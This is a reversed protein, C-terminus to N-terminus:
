PSNRFPIGRRPKADIPMPARRNVGGRMSERGRPSSSSAGRGPM